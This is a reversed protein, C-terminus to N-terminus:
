ADGFLERNIANLKKRNINFGNKNSEIGCESLTKYGPEDIWKAIYPNYNCETEMFWEKDYRKVPVRNDVCMYRYECQKCIDILGKHITWYKQFEESDIIKLLKSASNLENINGFIQQTIPANKIEGNVGIYLKRNFYTNHKISETYLSINAIFDNQSVYTKQSDYIITIGKRSSVSTENRNLVYIHTLKSFNNILLNISDADILSHIIIQFSNFSTNKAIEILLDLTNENYKLVNACLCDTKLNILSSLNLPQQKDDAIEVIINSILYPTDWDKNMTSFQERSSYLFGVNRSMLNELFADIQSDFKNDHKKKVSSITHTKLLILIEHLSNPIVFFTNETLNILVSQNFGFVTICCSYLNFYNTSTNM